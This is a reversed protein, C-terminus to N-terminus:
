MIDLAKSSLKEKGWLRDFIYEVFEVWTHTKNPLVTKSDKLASLTM